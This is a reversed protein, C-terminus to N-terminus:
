PRWGGDWLARARALDAPTDVELAEDATVELAAIKGGLRAGTALLYHTRTLYLLGTEHWSRVRETMDQRRPRTSYAGRRDREGQECDWGWDQFTWVFHLPTLCLLSDAQEQELRELADPLLTQRRMPCDAQLTVVVDPMARETVDLWHCLAHTICPDTPTEDRALEPTRMVIFAGAEAAIEAYRPSDTTVVVEAVAKHRASQIAHELLTRDGLMAINKDPLGKSGSRAPIIALCTLM